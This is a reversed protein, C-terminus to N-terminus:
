AMDLQSLYRAVSEELQARRREVKARTFNKDCNDLQQWRHRHKRDHSAEDQPLARRLARVDQADGAWQGQPFRCNNQSRSSPPEHAVDSRCQALRVNSGGARSFGISSGYIYLKLLVAPHYSPRGTAEPDVGGFGLEALGLEEVFLDIARVPNDEAIWDELCEPFL